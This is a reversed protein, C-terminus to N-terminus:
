DSGQELFTLSEGSSIFYFRFEEAQFEGSELVQDWGVQLGATKESSSGCSQAPALWADLAWGNFLCMWEPTGRCKSPDLFSLSM